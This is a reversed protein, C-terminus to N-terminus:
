NNTQTVTATNAGLQTATNMNGLGNVMNTQMVTATNDGRLSNNLNNQVLVSTGLDGDQVIYAENTMPTSNLTSSQNVSSDNNDGNQAVDSFNRRFRQMVTSRNLYGGALSGSSLESSTQNSISVNSLDREQTVSLYNNGNTQTATSTQNRKTQTITAFNGVGNSSATNNQTLVSSNGSAFNNGVGSVQSVFAQNNTGDQDISSDQRNQNFGPNGNGGVQNVTAMNLTGTQTLVSENNGVQTIQADNSAGNQDVDSANYFVGTSTQNIDANNTGSQLLDSINQSFGMLTLFSFMGTLIVKKM